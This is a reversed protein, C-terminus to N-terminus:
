TPRQASGPDPDADTGLSPIRDALRETTSRRLLPQSLAITVVVFVLGLAFTGFAALGRREAGLTYLDYVFLLSVFPTLICALAGWTAVWLMVRLVRLSERFQESRWRLDGDVRPGGPFVYELRDVMRPVWSRLYFWWTSVTLGVLMSCVVLPAESPEGKARHEDWVLAFGGVAILLMTLLALIEPRTMAPYRTYAVLLHTRRRIEERLEKQADYPLRDLMESDVALESRLRRATLLIQGVVASAIGIMLTAAIPVLSQLLGM